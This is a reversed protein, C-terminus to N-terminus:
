YRHLWQLEELRTKGASLVMKTVHISSEATVHVRAWEELGFWGTHSLGRGFHLPLTESRLLRCSQAIPPVTDWNGHSQLDIMDERWFLDYIILRLETLLELLYYRATPPCTTVTSSM